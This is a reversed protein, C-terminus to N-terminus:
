FCMHAVSCFLVARTIRSGAKAEQKTSGGQCLRANGTEAQFQAILKKGVAVRPGSGASSVLWPASVLNKSGKRRGENTDTAVAIM